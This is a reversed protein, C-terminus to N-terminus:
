VAHIPIQLPPADAQAKDRVAGALHTGLRPNVFYRVARGEKRRYVAGIAELEGMIASVHQPHCGVVRALEDRDALVENGDPPLLEFLRAWLKLATIKRCSHDALHNVVEAYLKPEIMIFRWGRRSALEREVVAVLRERVAHPAGELSQLVERLAELSAQEKADRRTKLRTVPM